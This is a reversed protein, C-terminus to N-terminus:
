FSVVRISSKEVSPWDSKFPKDNSINACCGHGDKRGCAGDLEMRRREAREHAILLLPQHFSDETSCMSLTKSIEYWDWRIAEGSQRENDFEYLDGEAGAQKEELKNSFSFLGNESSRGRRWTKGRKGGEAEVHKQTLNDREVNGNRRWQSCQGQRQTSITENQPSLSAPHASSTNFLGVSFGTHSHCIVDKAKRQSSFVSLLNEIHEVAPHLTWQSWLQMQIARLHQESHLTM